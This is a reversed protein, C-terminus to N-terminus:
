RRILQPRLGFTGGLARQQSSGSRALEAANMEGIVVEIKRNGRSDVTERTEAKDSGYNNVVVDVNGGSQGNSRVGLNGQGDRTLPMIAEPGAEGMMGTGKAFKFLTPSDVIQNTFAGGKAFAQVGYDWAGGKAMGLTQTALMQSQSMGATINDAGIGGGVGLAGMFLKGIGSLGGQSSIFQM